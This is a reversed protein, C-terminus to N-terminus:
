WVRSLPIRTLQKLDGGAGPGRTQEKGPRGTYRSAMVLLYVPMRTSEKTGGTRATTVTALPPRLTSGQRSPPQLPAAPGPPPEDGPDGVEGAVRHDHESGDLFSM